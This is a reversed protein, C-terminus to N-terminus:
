KSIEPTTEITTFCDYSSSTPDVVERGFVIASKPIPTPSSANIRMYKEKGILSCNYSEERKNFVANNFKKNTKLFSEFAQKLDILSLEQKTCSILIVENASDVNHRVIAM